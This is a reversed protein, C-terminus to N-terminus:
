YVPFTYFIPRFPKDKQHFCQICLLVHCAQVKYNNKKSVSLLRYDFTMCIFIVVPLPNCPLIEGKNCFYSKNATM